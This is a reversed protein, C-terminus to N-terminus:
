RFKVPRGEKTVCEVDVKVYGGGRVEVTSLYRGGAAMARDAADQIRHTPLLTESKYHLAWDLPRHMMMFHRLALMKEDTQSAYLLLDKPKRLPGGEKVAEALQKGCVKEIRELAADYEPTGKTGAEIKKPPKAGAKVAAHAVPDEKKRAVAREVSAQSVNVAAAAQAAAKGASEKPPADGNKGNADNSASPSKTPSETGQKLGSKQRKEAEAAYLPILDAGIAARQAISLDRRRMNKSVVFKLPSPGDKQPDFMRFRPVKKGALLAKQRNRGDLVYRRESDAILVIEERQGETCVDQEFEEYPQGEMMPFQDAIIHAPYGGAPMEKILDSPKNM